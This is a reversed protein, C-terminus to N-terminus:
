SFRGTHTRHFCNLLCSLPSFRKIRSYEPFCCKGLNDTCASLLDSVIVAIADLLQGIRLAFMRGCRWLCEEFEAFVITEIEAVGPEKYREHCSTVDRLIM